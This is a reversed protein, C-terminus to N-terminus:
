APRRGIRAEPTRVRKRVGRARCRNRGRERIWPPATRRASHVPAVAIFGDEVRHADAARGALPQELRREREGTAGGPPRRRRTVQTSLAFTSGEIAKKRSIKRSHAARIGVDVRVADVDVGRRKAPDHLAMPNSTTTVSFMNPSMRDSRPAPRIPPMPMAGDASMPSRCATNWGHWPVAGSMAPRPSALGVAINRDAAM